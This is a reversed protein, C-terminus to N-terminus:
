GVAKKCQRNRSIHFAQNTKTHQEQQQRSQKRIANSEL